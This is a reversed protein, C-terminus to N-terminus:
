EVPMACLTMACLFTYAIFIAKDKHIKSTYGFSPSVAVLVKM